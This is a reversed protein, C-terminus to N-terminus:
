ESAGATKAVQDPRIKGTDFKEAAQAMHDLLAEADPAPKGRPRFPRIRSVVFNRLYPSDFGREKLAAIIEAVRDDIALLRMARARRTELAAPLPVALFEDSAKLAPAYAGGAFRARQQYACGLTVLHPEEFELAFESEKRTPDLDVLGQAMRVAELSREKTNHAKETNLALIRYALAPDPSILATLSKGGLRALANLRHLGNPTWFAVGDKADEPAPVAVVPDLFTGLKDIVNELKKVHADSLDRQFPTPAIADLPLAALVLPLGGLPDRYKALVAGGATEVRAALDALAADDANAMEAPTIGRSAAAVQKRRTAKKRAAV